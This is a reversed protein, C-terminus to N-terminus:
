SPNHGYIWRWDDFGFSYHLKLEYVVHTTTEDVVMVQLAERNYWNVTQNRWMGDAMFWANTDSLRLWPIVKFRGSQPNVANNGSAPDLVSEAIEIAKDHLEPPVWLENPMVGIENGIDDAFRMMLVRTDSVADKTLPSTGYNDYTNSSDTPSVPHSDSCLAVADGGPQATADFANNLLSAADIEMKQEASIGARQVLKQAKGYQDNMLLKKEIPLRVPYEVHTYTKSYQEDVDLTGPHGAVKYQDWTDPSMGGIGTGKEQALKSGQINFLQSRMSPVMNVGLEFHHYIGPTLLRSLQESIIM